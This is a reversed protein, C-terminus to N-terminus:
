LFYLPLHRLHHFVLLFDDLSLEEPRATPSKGIEQLAKEIALPPFLKKLSARIMKRRQGFATRTLLFFSDWQEKPLPSPHLTLHVMASDVEPAPYFSHRSVKFGFSSAAYFDLFLSLSSYDADGAQACIRRGVEEQVMLTLSDIQEYLPVLVALIPTTLHYPLNAIVKAKQGKGLRQALEQELPFALFDSCFIELDTGTTQFRQLADSLISDKEIAMLRAKEELLLETLAGPGPGIEIVLDGPKVHSLVVIKRLINGDILFNQSLGKKPKIGLQDLFTHLVSPQYIPM